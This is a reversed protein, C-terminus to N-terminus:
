PTRNPPSTAPEAEAGARVHSLVPALTKKFHYGPWRFSSKTASRDFFALHPTWDSGFYVMARFYYTLANKPRAPPPMDPLIPVHWTSGLRTRLETLAREAEVTAQRKFMRYDNPDTVLIILRSPDRQRMIEVYEWATGPGPGAGVIILRAHTILETVIPQWDAHPLYIRWAGAGGPLVEGPRGVGVLPGFGRFMRALQEEHTRASRYMPGLVSSDADPISTSDDLWFPRLYLVYSGTVLREVSDIVPVLHRRGRTGVRVSFFLLTMGSIAVAYWVVRWVWSIAGHSNAGSFGVITAIAGLVRM